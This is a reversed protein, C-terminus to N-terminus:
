FEKKEEQTTNPNEFMLSGRQVQAIMDKVRDANRV